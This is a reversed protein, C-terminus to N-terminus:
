WYPPVTCTNTCKIVQDKRAVDWLWIITGFIWWQFRKAQYFVTTNTLIFWHHLELPRCFYLLLVSRFLEMVVGSLSLNLVSRLQPFNFFLCCWLLGSNLVITVSQIVWRKVRPTCPNLIPPYCCCPALSYMNWTIENGGVNYVFVLLESNVTDVTVDLNKSM